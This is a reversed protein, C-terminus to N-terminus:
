FGYRKLFKTKLLFNFNQLEFHMLKFKATSKEKSINAYLM